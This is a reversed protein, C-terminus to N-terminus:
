RIIAATCGTDRLVKVQQGDVIGKVIPLHRMFPKDETLINESQMNPRREQTKRRYSKCQQTSSTSMCTSASHESNCSDTPIDEVDVAATSSMAKKKAYCEHAKHGQKDCYFCTISSRYSQNSPKTAQHQKHQQEQNTTNTLPATPRSQKPKIHHADMYIDATHIVEDMNKFEKGRIHTSVEVPCAHLFQEVIVFNRLDGFQKNVDALDILIYFLDQLKAMFQGATEGREMRSSHFKRRYGEETM